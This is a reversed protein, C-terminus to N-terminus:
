VSEKRLARDHDQKIAIRDVPSLPADPYGAEACIDATVDEIFNGDVFKVFAIQRNDSAIIDRAQEVIARRTLEPQVIAELGQPRRLGRGYDIMLIYYSYSAATQM